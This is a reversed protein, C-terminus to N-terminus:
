RAPDVSRRGYSQKVRKWDQPMRVEDVFSAGNRRLKGILWFGLEDEGRADIYELDLLTNLCFGIAAAEQGLADAEDDLSIITTARPSTQRDELILMLTRMLDVDYTM